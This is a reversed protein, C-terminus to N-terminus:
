PRLSLSIIEARRKISRISVKDESITGDEPPVGQEISVDVDGVILSDLGVEQCAVFGAVCCLRSAGVELFQHLMLALSNM